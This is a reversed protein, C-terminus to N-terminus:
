EEEKFSSKKPRGAKKVPAAEEVAEEEQEVVEYWGPDARFSEADGENTVVAITNPNNSDVMQFKYKMNIDEELSLM